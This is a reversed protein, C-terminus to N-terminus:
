SRISRTHCVQGLVVSDSYQQDLVMRQDALSQAERNALVLVRLNAALGPVPLVRERRDLGAPRNQDDHLHLELIGAPQVQRPAHKVLAGVRHHQHHRHVIFGGV